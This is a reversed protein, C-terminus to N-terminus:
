TLPAGQTIVTVHARPAVGPTAARFSVANDGPEVSPIPSGIPVDKLLQGQPGYLKCDDAALLEVYCGSEIEVPLTLAQGNVVLTPNILKSKVLPLGRIPSLWCAAKKGPPVNNFWLGLSEIQPYHVSERYISYIDGYPWAYDAHRAGEPEILEFYRWGTFDIPVYHDGIAHTIHSPSRLQVNLVQGQGDGYVWVGIAEHRNTGLFQAGLRPAEFGDAWEVTQLETSFGPMLTINSVLEWVREIPAAIDATVEVGPLTMATLM